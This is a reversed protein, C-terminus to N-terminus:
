LREPHLPDRHRSVGECIGLVAHFCRRFLTFVGEHLCFHRQFAKMFALVTEPVGNRGEEDIPNGEEDLDIESGEEEEGELLPFELSDSLSMGETKVKVVSQSRSRKRARLFSGRFAGMSARVLGPDEAYIGKLAHLGDSEDDDDFAAALASTQSRDRTARRGTTYGSVFTHSKADM